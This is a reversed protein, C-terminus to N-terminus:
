KYDYDFDYDYFYDNDYEIGCDDEAAEILIRDRVLLMRTWSYTYSYIKTYTAAPLGVSLCSRFWFSIARFSVSKHIFSFSM